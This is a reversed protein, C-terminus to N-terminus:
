ELDRENFGAFWGNDYGENYGVDYGKDYEDALRSKGEPSALWKEVIDKIDKSWEEEYTM